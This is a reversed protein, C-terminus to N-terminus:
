NEPATRPRFFEQNSFLSTSRHMIYASSFQSSGTSSIRLRRSVTSNQRVSRLSTGKQKGQRLWVSPCLMVFSACLSLQRASQPQQGPSRNRPLAPWLLSKTFKKRSLSALPDASIEATPRMLMGANRQCLSDHHAIARVTTHAVGCLLIAIKHHNYM